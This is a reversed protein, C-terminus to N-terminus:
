RLWKSDGASPRVAGIEELNQDIREQIRAYAAMEEDTHGEELIPLMWADPHEVNSYQTIVEHRIGGDVDAIIWPLGDLPEILWCDLRLRLNTQLTPHVKVLRGVNGLCDPEDFLILATDGAKCRTEM